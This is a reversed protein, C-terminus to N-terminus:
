IEEGLQQPACWTRLIDINRKAYLAIFLFSALYLVWFATSCPEVGLISPFKESGRVFALLIIIFVLFALNKFIEM